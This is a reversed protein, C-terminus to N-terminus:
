GGPLEHPGHAGGLPGGPHILDLHILLSFVFYVAFFVMIKACSEIMVLRGERGESGFKESCSYLASTIRAAWELSGSHHYHAECRYRYWGKCRLPHVTREIAPEWQMEHLHCFKNADGSNHQSGMAGCLGWHIRHIPLFQSTLDLPFTPVVALSRIFHFKAAISGSHVKHNRHNRLVWM